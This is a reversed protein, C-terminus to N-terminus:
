SIAAKDVKPRKYTEDGVDQRKPARRYVNSYRTQHKATLYWEGCELFEERSVWAQAAEPTACYLSAGKWADAILDKAKRVAFQSGFPRM